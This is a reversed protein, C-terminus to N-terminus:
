VSHSSFVPVPLFFISSSSFYLFFFSNPAPPPCSSFLPFLLLPTPHSLWHVNGSWISGGGREREREREREWDLLCVGICRSQIQTLIFDSGGGKREGASCCGEYGTGTCTHTHSERLWEERVNWLLHPISQQSVSVFFTLPINNPDTCNKFSSQVLCEASKKKWANPQIM